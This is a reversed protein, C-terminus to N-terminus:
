FVDEAYREKAKLKAVSLHLPALVADLADAVGQAMARSGCVRVIAGQSVWHRVREADRRLADQVHGGGQPVRSFVTQLSTLRGEGLWREIEPGFYFDQAPDRGGFYLHMPRRRENRRIFGALPAVGTGAGVLLVPKRSQTLAFGPNPRIFAHITNHSTDHAQLGLLHTSCQGGPMLRVCIELFGDQWGSALSYFRPVGSGPLVIGVLDGASFRALGRTGLFSRLGERPWDFRLIAAAQGGALPFDQRGTLTLVTTPPVRPVHELVLAENLAQALALGWRAFQQASQQHICELPLLAPWGQTRLQRELAEAFACFAPYQRDGFGLVTVPVKNAKLKAILTLAGSAHAPAQGEGYTAAMVFVQKTAATTQFHELASTHVRHGLPSLADQLTQAFGWTSGGESAVFILVDAQVMPVNGTIQPMQSRAQWWMLLGSLWFLLVSAGALGLVVAWLWASEGTHLVVALDVVRQALSADQWALM